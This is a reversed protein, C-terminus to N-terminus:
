ILKLIVCKVLESASKAQRFMSSCYVLRYWYPMQKSVRIQIKLIRFILLLFFHSGLLEKSIGAWVPGDGNECIECYNHMKITVKKWLFSDSTTLALRHM